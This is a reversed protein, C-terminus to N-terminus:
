PLLQRLLPERLYLLRLFSKSFAPILSYSIRAEDLSDVRSSLEYPGNPLESKLREHLFKKRRYCALKRQTM